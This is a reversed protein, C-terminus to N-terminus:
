RQHKDSDKLRASLQQKTEQLTQKLGLNERAPSTEYIELMSTIVQLLERDDGLQTYIAKAYMLVEWNPPTSSKLVLGIGRRATDATPSQRALRLAVSLVPQLSQKDTSAVATSVRELWQQPNDEALWQFTVLNVQDAVQPHKAQLESLTTRASAADGQERLKAATQFTTNIEHAVRQSELFDSFAKQAQLLDYRGNKIATLKADLDNTPGIWLLTRRHIIFTTPIGDQAAAKLWGDIM